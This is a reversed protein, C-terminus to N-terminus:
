TIGFVGPEDERERVDEALGCEQEIGFAAALRVEGVGVAFGPVIEVM